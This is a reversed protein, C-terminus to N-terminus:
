EQRNRLKIDNLSVEIMMHAVKLPRFISGILLMNKRKITAGKLVHNGRRHFM